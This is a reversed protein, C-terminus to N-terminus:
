LPYIDETGAPGDISYNGIGIYDSWCNGQNIVNNYWLNNNGEDFGQSNITGSLRGDVNYTELYGNGILVNHYIKNWNANGVLAIGHQPSNKITNNIIINYSSYRINIGQNNNSEVINNQVLCHSAYNFHIGQMFNTIINSIITCNTTQGLVIGGGDSTKSYCTNNIIWSTGAAVDSLSIGIYDTYIFCNRIIFFANTNSIHIAESFRGSASIRLDEIIYPNNQTGNGPFEYPIFDADSEILIPPHLKANLVFNITFIIGITSAITIISILVLLANKNRKLLTFVM